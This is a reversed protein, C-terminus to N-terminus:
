LKLKSVPMPKDFYYGQLTPCGHEILFEKQEVTEVGEAITELKFTKALGLITKVIAEDHPDTLMENVFSRDIKVSDIPLKKLYNLSSYGTGFDDISFRIGLNRLTHMKEIVDKMNQMLLRETIEFELLQPNCETDAIIQQVLSVFNDRSIQKESINVAITLSQTSETKSWVTLQTCAQQIVWQGIDVILSSEESIDIFEDPMILGKNPHNWRILAEYGHTKSESNVKAQYYLEFENHIIAHRLETEIYSKKNITEQMSPDFFMVMNRGASKAQYMALDSRVMMQEVSETHDTYLSVGISASIAHESNNIIFPTALQELISDAITKAHQSALTYDKGLEELLVIFEDGGTRSVTDMERVSRKLRIAVEKLLTDGSNHGLTDNLTKFHDLDIFLLAFFEKNRTSLAQAHQLHEQLLRRNALNTLPDFFALKRIREENEKFQTIDDFTSVYHTINDKKDKIATITQGVPFIQGDKRRNWVEGQGYGNTQLTKWLKPYFSADHKGSALMRPTQGESESFSYGTTRTFAKNVKIIKEKADTILISAQTDFAVSSIKLSQNIKELKKHNDYLRRYTHLIIAILIFIITLLLSVDILEPKKQNWIDTLTIDHVKDFPYVRLTRLVERVPEYDAPIRFGHIDISQAIQGDHPLALIAGAVQGALAEGVHPMAAFPWEPYLRTSSQFPFSPQDQENLVRLEGTKIKGQKELSELVGSRIFAADVEDNLLAFVAKDHPMTTQIVKADKPLKLGAQYLEYAQMKFGGFSKQSPTAIVKGALDELAQIKPNKVLITGAFSRVAQGSKKNILTALPSSLNVQHALQVFHASNTFVFDIHKHKIAEELESYNFPHIKFEIGPTHKNLYEVLPQWRAEVAPKERFALIGISVKDTAQALSPLSLQIICILLLVIKKSLLM